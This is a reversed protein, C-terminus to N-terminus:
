CEFRFCPTPAAAAVQPRAVLAAWPLARLSPLMKSRRCALMSSRSHEFPLCLTPAARRLLALHAWQQWVEKVEWTWKQGREGKGKRLYRCHVFLQCGQLRRVLCAAAPM